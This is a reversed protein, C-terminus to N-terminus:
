CPIDLAILAEEKYFRLGKALCDIHVPINGSSEGTLGKVQKIFVTPQNEKTDCIPCSIHKSPFISIITKAEGLQAVKKLITRKIELPIIIVTSFDVKPYRLQLDLITSGLDLILPQESEVLEKGAIVQLYERSVRDIITDFKEM